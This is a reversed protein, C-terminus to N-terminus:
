ADMEKIMKKTLLIRRTVIECKRCGFKVSSSLKTPKWDIVKWESDACECRLKGSRELLDILKIIRHDSAREEERSGRIEPEPQEDIQRPAAARGIPQKRTRDVQRRWRALQGYMMLLYQFAGIAKESGPDSLLLQLIGEAFELKDRLLILPLGGAADQPYYLAHFAAREGQSLTGDLGKEFDYMVAQICQAIYECSRFALDLLVHKVISRAEKPNLGKLRQAVQKVFSNHHGLFWMDFHQQPKDSCIHSDLASLIQEEVALRLDEPLVLDAEIDFLASRVLLRSAERDRPPLPDRNALAALGHHIRQSARRLRIGHDAAFDEGLKMLQAPNKPAEPSTAPLWTLPLMSKPGATRRDVLDSVTNFRRSVFPRMTQGRLFLFWMDGFSRRLHSDFRDPFHKCLIAFGCQRAAFLFARFPDRQKKAPDRSDFPWFVREGLATQGCVLDLAMGSPLVDSLEPGPLWRYLKTSGRRYAAPPAPEFETKGLQVVSGWTACNDQM